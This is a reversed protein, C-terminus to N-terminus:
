NGDKYLRTMKVSLNIVIMYIITSIVQSIISALYADYNITLFYYQLFWRVITYIVEGIGLSTIIKILDHQLKVKDTKGSELLYKKRNDLYYLSGFTSFYVVYDVLLTYSTNLYAAQESLVQAVIASIIISAAFAILINKNLSFYKNYKKLM